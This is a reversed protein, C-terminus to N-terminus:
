SGQQPALAPCVLTGDPGPPSPPPVEMFAIDHHNLRGRGHDGSSFPMRGPGSPEQRRFEGVQFFGLMETWFRHTEDLNRVNLVLHNLGSPAAPGRAPHATM